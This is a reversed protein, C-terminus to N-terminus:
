FSETIFDVSEDYYGESEGTFVFTFSRGSVFHLILKTTTISCGCEQVRDTELSVERVVENNGLYGETTELQVIENVDRYHWAFVTGGEFRISALVQDWSNLQTFLHPARVKLDEKVLKTDCIWGQFIRGSCFASLEAVEKYPSM